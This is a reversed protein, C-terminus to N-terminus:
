GAAPDLEVCVLEKEGRLYLRTGVIAPHSLLEAERVDSDTFLHLRSVVRFLDSTADVLLLEGGRGIALARDESVLLPSYDGLADDEGAWLTALGNTLDLCYFQGHVCFARQGVVAPSSTDPGLEDNTAVPEAVIHGADDFRYLRTGNNETTVLLQGGVAVPTPVNFDGQHPPKLTWLRRGSAIDWGGLTTRDYGVLQRAGGLTAVIFSSYAHYDGPTQWLLQGTLPDLAVLSAEPGGPNVILKGDVVLPSSCTGWVLEPDGEFLRVINMQWAVLGTRLEVCSLDGFAGLFIAHGDYVLPTARPTNDFDLQGPAPYRHTWLMRGDAAAYCRFEDLTNSVDRDGLMVVDCNAAIGGLGPRHLPHRWVIYPEKPLLKPLWGVRGDRHEGRWGPWASTTKADPQATESTPSGPRGRGRDADGDSQNATTSQGPRHVARSVQEAAPYDEGLPVFGVLTELAALLDAQSGVALLAERIEDRLAADVRETVFATIFPVPDTEGVIRLDGKNITGCGELLPAAYSSIVAAARASDGWEIIKCAGDSCAETTEAAAVAPVEVGAATLLNRPAAFKEDCESTGFLIRYGRLDHVNQAPDAARVVVLGTQTTKGDKGTLRALPTVGLKLGAADHRVVSDKGIAIDIATCGAQELAKEFSAAFTVQVPRGLQQSLYGALEEYRRQAYGEVCPCSLPAALPDMVVMSLGDAPESPAIASDEAWTPSAFMTLVFATLLRRM